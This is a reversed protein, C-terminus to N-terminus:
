FTIKTGTFAATIQAEKAKKRAEWSPHLVGEDDKKPPARPKEEGRGRDRNRGGNLPNSIGKKWPKRGGDEDAGVAGRKMDWGNDRAGARPGNAQNKVHNASAGYKKEWIAQRQKQGLRKKPPALDLDSAESESNSIYGGMLSPLFTTEGPRGAPKKARKVKKEKSSSALEPEPSLSVNAANIRRQRDSDNGSDSDDPDAMEENENEDEDEEDSNSEDDATDGDAVDVLLAKYKAKLDEDPSEEESDSGGLMAEMKSLAREEEEEDIEVEGAAENKGGESADSDTPIEDDMEDFPNPEEEKEKPKSEAMPKASVDKAGVLKAKKSERPEDEKELKKGEAAADNTGKKKKKKKEPIPVNLILCVGRVAKEIADRVHVRNFLGSTVNHLAVKEEESLEPKTVGQKIAEPLAPSEAIQKVKLLSSHLHADATQQLDLSKLVLIEGELRKVKDPTAKDDRLRKSYRQRELGKAGKLARFIEKRYDTLKADIDDERSRKRKVM